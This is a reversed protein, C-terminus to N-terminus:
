AGESLPPHSSEASLSAHAVDHVNWDCARATLPPLQQLVQLHAVKSRLVDVEASSGGEVAQGVHTRSFLVHMACM